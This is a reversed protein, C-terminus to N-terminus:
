GVSLPKSLFSLRRTARHEIVVVAMGNAREAIGPILYMLHRSSVPQNFIRKVAGM